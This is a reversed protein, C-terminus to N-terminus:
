YNSVESEIVSPFICLISLFISSEFLVLFRNSGDSM